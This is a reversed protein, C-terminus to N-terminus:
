VVINIIKNNVYIQKKIKENANIIKKVNDLKMAESLVDL